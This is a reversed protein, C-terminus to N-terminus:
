ENQNEEFKVHFSNSSTKPIIVEERTKGQLVVKDEPLDYAIVKSTDYDGTQYKRRLLDNINIVSDINRNLVDNIVDEDSICSVSKYVKANSSKCAVDIQHKIDKWDSRTGKIAYITAQVMSNDATKKISHDIIKVFNVASDNRSFSQVKDYYNRLAPSDNLNHIYIDFVFEGLLSELFRRLRVSRQVIDASTNNFCCVLYTINGNLYEICGDEHITKINLLKATPTYNDHLRRRFIDVRYGERGPILMVIRISFFIEFPIFIWIPIYKFLSFYVYLLIPLACLCLTILVPGLRSESQGYFHNINLLMGITPKKSNEEEFM